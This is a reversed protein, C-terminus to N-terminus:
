KVVVDFTESTGDSYEVTMEVTNNLKGNIDTIDDKVGGVDTELTEVTDQLASVDGTVTDVTNSLGTVDEGLNSVTGSLTEVANVASTVDDSLHGITSSHDSVASEVAGVRDSLGGVSVELADVDVVVDDIRDNIQEVVTRKDDSPAVGDGIFGSQGLYVKVQNTTVRLDGDVGYLSFMFYDGVLVEFPVTVKDDDLELDYVGVKDAYFEIKRTLNGWVGEGFTFKLELYDVSRNVPVNEDTRVVSQEDVNYSIIM